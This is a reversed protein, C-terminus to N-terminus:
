HSEPTRWLIWITYRRLVRVLDVHSEGAQLPSCLRGGAATRAALFASAFADAIRRSRLSRRDPPPGQLALDTANSGWGARKARRGGGKLPLYAADTAQDVLECM